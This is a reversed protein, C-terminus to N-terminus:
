SAAALLRLQNLARVLVRQVQAQSLGVRNAIEAQTLGEVFRLRILRKQRAPLNALLQKMALREDVAEFGQDDSALRVSLSLGEDGPPSSDFSTCRRLAGAKLAEVVDDPAAGVRQGIEATTPHRGLEFSLNRQEESVELYLEQVRRYPRVMWSSDRLYHKLEGVITAAAFAACPVGRSADYRDVAQILGVLAVQTLDDISEVRGRAYRRALSVALGYNANLLEQRRTSQPSATPRIM